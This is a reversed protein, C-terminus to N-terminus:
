AAVEGLCALRPMTVPVPGSLTSCGGNNIVMRTVRDPNGSNRDECGTDYHASGARWLRANVTSRGLDFRRAIENYTEGRKRRTEMDALMRDSIKTM